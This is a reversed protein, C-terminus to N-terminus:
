PGERNLVFPLNISENEMLNNILSREVIEIYLIKIPQSVLVVSWGYNIM